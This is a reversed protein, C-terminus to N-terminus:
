FGDGIEVVRVVDGYKDGFFRAGRAAQPSGRHAAGAM